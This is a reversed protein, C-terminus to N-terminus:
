GVTDANTALDVSQSQSTLLYLYYFYYFLLLLISTTATTLLLVLLQHSIDWGVPRAKNHLIITIAQIHHIAISSQSKKSREILHILVSSTQLSFEIIFYHAGMIAASLPVACDIFSPIM